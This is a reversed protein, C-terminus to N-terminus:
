HSSFGKLRATAVTSPLRGARLLPLDIQKALAADLIREVETTTSALLAEEVAAAAASADLQRVVWRVLTLAPPSVSLVRYGM